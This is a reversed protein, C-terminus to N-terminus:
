LSGIIGHSPLGCSPFCPTFFFGNSHGKILLNVMSIWTMKTTQAMCIKFIVTTGVDGSLTPHLVNALRCPMLHLFAVFHYADVLDWFHWPRFNQGPDTKMNPTQFKPGESQTSFFHLAPLGLYIYDIPNIFNYALKLMGVDWAPSVHKSPLSNVNWASVLDDTEKEAKRVTKFRPRPKKLSPYPSASPDLSAGLPPQSRRRTRTFSSSSSLAEERLGAGEGGRKSSAGGVRKKWSAVGGKVFGGRGWIFFDPVGRSECSESFNIGFTL